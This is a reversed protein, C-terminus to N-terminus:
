DRKKQPRCKKGEFTPPVSRGRKGKTRDVKKGRGVKANNKKRIPAGKSGWFSLFKGERELNEM